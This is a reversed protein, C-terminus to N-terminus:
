ACHRMGPQQGPERHESHRSRGRGYHTQLADPRWGDEAVIRLAGADDILIGLDAAGGQSATEFIRLADEFLRRV